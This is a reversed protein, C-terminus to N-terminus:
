ASPKRAQQILWDTLALTRATNGALAPSTYYRGHVGLAPVSDIRYAASLQRAARASALVAPSKLAQAFAVKDLGLSAIFELLEPEKNLSRHQAHIAAFLKRHVAELLNLSELAYFARQHLEHLPSFGVPVRRVVVDAAQKGLWANLAPEIADCRPSGYWFFVLLEIKGAAAVPVPQALRVYDKGDVWAQAQAVPWAGVGVWALCLERRKLM